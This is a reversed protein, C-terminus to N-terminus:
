HPTSFKERFVKESAEIERHWTGGCPPKMRLDYILFRLVEELAVWGTPVHLRDLDLGEAGQIPITAQQQVHHRCPKAGARLTRDYEWRILAKEDSGPAEQLRYWYNLTSLAFDGEEKRAKAEVFQAVWFFLRGHRTEIPVAKPSQGERFGVHAHTSTAQVLVPCRTPVTKKLLAALHGRFAEFCKEPTKGTIPL